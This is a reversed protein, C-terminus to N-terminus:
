RAVRVAVAAWWYRRRQLIGEVLRKGVWFNFLTLGALLLVFRPELYAYIAYSAVLLLLNQWKGPVLYYLVLVVATFLWFEVSVFM